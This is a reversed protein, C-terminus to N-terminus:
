AVMVSKNDTMWVTLIVTLNTSVPGNNIAFYIEEKGEFPIANHGSFEAIAPLYLTAPPYPQFTPMTGLNQGKGSFIGFWSGSVGTVGQWPNGPTYGDAIVVIRGITVDKGVPGGGVLFEANGNADTKGQGAIKIPLPVMPRLENLKSHFKGFLKDLAEIIDGTVPFRELTEM